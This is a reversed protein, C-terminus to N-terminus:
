PELEKRLTALGRRIHSRVTSAPEDLLRAIESARFRGYYKLVVAIRQEEPLKALVDRFENAEVSLGEPPDPVREAMMHRRRLTSRCRNVVTTHLYAGPRDVEDLHRYVEVFSDQVLDEADPGNGVLAYALRVMAPYEKRFLEDFRDRRRDAVAPSPEVVVTQMEEEV